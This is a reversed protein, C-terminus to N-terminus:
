CSLITWVSNSDTESSWTCFETPLLQCVAQNFCLARLCTSSCISAISETCWFPFIARFGRGNSIMLKKEMLDTGIM